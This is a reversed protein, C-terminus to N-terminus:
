RALRMVRERAPGLRIEEMTQRIEHRLAARDVRNRADPTRDGLADSPDTISWRLRHHEIRTATSEWREAARQNSPPPGLPDTLYRPPATRYGRVRASAGSLLEDDLQERRRYLDGVQRRDPLGEYAMVADISALQGSVDELRTVTRDLDSRLDEILRRRKPRPLGGARQELQRRLREIDGTLM